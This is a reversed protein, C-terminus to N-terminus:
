GKAADEPQAATQALKRKLLREIAEKVEAYEQEDIAGAARESEIAFLEDKLVQLAADSGTQASEAM